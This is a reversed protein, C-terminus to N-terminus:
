RLWRVALLGIAQERIGIPVNAGACFIRVDNSPHADVCRALRAQLHELRLRGTLVKDATEILVV